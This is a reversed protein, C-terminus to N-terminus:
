AAATMLTGMADIALAEVDIRELARMALEDTQFFVERSVEVRVSGREGLYWYSLDGFFAIPTSPQAAGSNAASIGIWRIPFGDLTAPKGASQPIYIQPSGITNFTVLLSELSPHLYYAASTQGNAAMNALVAPNVLGRLARFDAITADTVKTKGAGLQRLYTPNAVCYSAIGTQSAYTATGDALFLTKDEGKALQRAIYRALFQGIPIFTDEELEFPIRILGGFKNATFTVLEATVRKEPVNQSMGATGAGLYAFDDEGAKLRPLKVTGAGLPFVTAFQRAQGYMFVLEVIQPAYITPLPIETGSLATKAQMGLIGKSKSLVRERAGADAILNQLAEGKLENVGMVFSACLFDACEDTVFPVNGVWRVGSNGIGGGVALNRRMKKVDGQLADFHEVIHKLGAFGGKSKGLDILAPVFEGLDKLTEIAEELEKLQSPSLAPVFVVACPRDLSLVALQFLVVLGVAHPLSIAGVYFLSLVLALMALTASLFPFKRFLNMIILHTFLQRTSLVALSVFRRVRAPISQAPHLQADHAVSSSASGTETRAQTTATLSPSLSGADVRATESRTIKQAADSRVTESREGRQPKGSTDRRGAFLAKPRHWACFWRSSFEFFRARSFIRTGHTARLFNM